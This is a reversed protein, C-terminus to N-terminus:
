RDGHVARLNVLRGPVGDEIEMREISGCGFGIM